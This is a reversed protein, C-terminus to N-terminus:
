TKNLCGYQHPIMLKRDNRPPFFRVTSKGVKQSKGHKQDSEQSMGQAKFASTTSFISKNPSFVGHECTRETNQRPMINSKFKVLSVINETLM